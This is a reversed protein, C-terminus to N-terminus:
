LISISHARGAPAVKERELLFIPLRGNIGIAGIGELFQFKKKKPEQIQL